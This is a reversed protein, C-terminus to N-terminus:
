KHGRRMEKSQIRITNSYFNSSWGVRLQGDYREKYLREAEKYLKEKLPDSLAEWPRSLKIRLENTSRRLGVYLIDVTDVASIILPM